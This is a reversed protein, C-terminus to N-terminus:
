IGNGGDLTAQGHSDGRTCFGSVNGLVNWRKRSTALDLANFRVLLELDQIPM